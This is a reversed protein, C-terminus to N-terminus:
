RKQQVFTLKFGDPDTIDFTKDGWSQVMPPAALVGGRASINAALRDLDQATKLYLRLGVGKQRDRGKSWDDQNIIFHTAGAKLEVGMLTGGMEWRDAITFGLVGEYWGLSRQLDNVTLSPTLDRARLTEPTRRKPRPKAKRAPRKKGRTAAM